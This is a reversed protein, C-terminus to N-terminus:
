ELTGIDFEDMDIMKAYSPEFNVDQGFYLMVTRSSEFGGSIYAAGILAEVVDSFQKASVRYALPKTASTYNKNQFNPYGPPSWTSIQIHQANLYHFIKKKM